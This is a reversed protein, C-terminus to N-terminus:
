DKRKKDARGTRGKAGKPFYYKSVEKLRLHHASIDSAVKYRTRHRSKPLQRYLALPEEMMVVECQFTKLLRLWMAYTNLYDWDKDPDHFGGIAKMAATETLAAETLICYKLMRRMTFPKARPIELPKLEDDAIILTPNIIPVVSEGHQSALIAMALQDKIKSPLMFDDSGFFTVYKTGTAMLGLQMQHITNPTKSEIITMDREIRGDVVKLAELVEQTDTDGVVSVVIIKARKNNLVISGICEELYCHHKYTPVVVTVEPM